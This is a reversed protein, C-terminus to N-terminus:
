KVFEADLSKLLEEERHSECLAKADARSLERGLCRMNKGELLWASCGRTELYVRYPGSYSTTDRELWTM